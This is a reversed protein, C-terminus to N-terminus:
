LISLLGCHLINMYPFTPNGKIKKKKNTVELKLFHLRITKQKKYGVRKKKHGGEGIAQKITLFFNIYTRKKKKIEM